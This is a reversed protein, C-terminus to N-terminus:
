FYKKIINELDVRTLPNEKLEVKAEEELNHLKDM